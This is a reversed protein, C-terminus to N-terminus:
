KVFYDKFEEVSNPCYIGFEGLMEIKDGPRDIFIIQKSGAANSLEKLYKYFTLNSKVSLYSFIVYDPSKTEIADGVSKLPVSQGLYYTKINQDLCLYNFFLLGLEHWEGEPLYLLATKTYSTKDTKRDIALILKRRIINSVLHEQGPNLAGTMWMLGINRFLPHIVNLMTSEMGYELFTHDFIKEFQEEDMDVVAFVLSDIIYKFDDNIITYEEVKKKLQNSSLGAINSIKHGSQNLLAINLVKKLDEDTYYRINSATRQPTVVNYRKEWIRITHAKIGSLRELDKISYKGM